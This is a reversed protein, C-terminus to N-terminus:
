PTHRQKGVTRVFHSLVNALREAPTRVEEFQTDCPSHYGSMVLEGIGLERDVLDFNGDLFGIRATGIDRHMGVVVLSDSVSDSGARFADLM